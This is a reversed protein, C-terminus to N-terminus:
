QARPLANLQSDHWLHTGQFSISRRPLRDAFLVLNARMPNRASPALLGVPNDARSHLALALDQTPANPTEWPYTLWDGTMEQMTTEITTLETERLGVVAPAAGIDIHYEVVVHRRGPGPVADGAWQGLIDRAEFRALLADPAFYMVQLNGTNFRSRDRGIRPPHFQYREDVSRFWSQQTLPM